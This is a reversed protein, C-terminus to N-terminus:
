ELYVKTKASTTHFASIPQVGDVLFDTAQVTTGDINENFILVVSTALDSGQAPTSLSADWFRGTEASSFAAPTSDITFQHWDATDNDGVAADEGTAAPTADTFAINGAMDTAEM